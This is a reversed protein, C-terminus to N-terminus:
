SCHSYIEGSGNIEHACRVLKSTRLELFNDKEVM